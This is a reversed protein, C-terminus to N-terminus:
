LVHQCSSCDQLDEGEKKLSSVTAGCFTCVYEEREWWRLQENEDLPEGTQVEETQIENLEQVNMMGKHHIQSPSSQKAQMGGPINIVASTANDSAKVTSTGAIFGKGCTKCSVHRYLDQRVATQWTGCHPCQIHIATSSQNLGGSNVNIKRMASM